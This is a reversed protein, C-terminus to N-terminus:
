VAERLMVTVQDSPSDVFNLSIMKIHMYENYNIVLRCSEVNVRKRGLGPTRLFGSEKGSWDSM